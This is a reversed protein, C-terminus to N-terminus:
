AKERERERERERLLTINITSSQFRKQQQEANISLTLQCGVMEKQKTLLMMKTTKRSTDQVYKRGCPQNYLCSLFFRSKNRKKIQPAKLKHLWSSTSHFVIFHFDSCVTLGDIWSENKFVKNKHNYLSKNAHTKLLFVLNPIWAPPLRFRIILYWQRILPRDVSGLCSLINFWSTLTSSDSTPSLCHLGFVVTCFCCLFTDNDSTPSLCHLGFM